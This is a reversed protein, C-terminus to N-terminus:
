TAKQALAMAKHEEHAVKEDLVELVKTLSERSADKSLFAITNVGYKVVNVTKVILSMNNNTYFVSYDLDSFDETKALIDMQNKVLNIIKSFDNVKFDDTSKQSVVNNRDNLLFVASREHDKIVDQCFDEISTGYQSMDNLIIQMSRFLTHILTPAISTFVCPINFRERLKKKILFFSKTKNETIDEKDMLDIKHCFTYIRASPALEKKNEIIKELNDIVEQKNNRWNLIDFVYLIIDAEQFAVMREFNNEPSLYSKFEQGSSDVIGIETDLWSYVFHALGRTPEPSEKGLLKEPDENDFFARKICTKGAQPFGIILVKKNQKKKYFQEAFTKFHLRRKAKNKLYFENINDRFMKQFQKFNKEDKQSLILVIIEDPSEDEFKKVHLLIKKSAYKIELISSEKKIEANKSLNVIKHIFGRSINYDHPYSAELLWKKQDEFQGNNMVSIYALGIPM